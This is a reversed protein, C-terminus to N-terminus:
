IAKEEGESKGHQRQCAHRVDLLAGRADGAHHCAVSAVATQGRHREPAYVATVLGAPCYPVVRPLECCNLLLTVLATSLMM